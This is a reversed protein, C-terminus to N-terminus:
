GRGRSLLHSLPRSALSLAVMAVTFFLLVRAVSTWSDALPAGPGITTLAMALGLGVYGGIVALALRFNAVRGSWGNGGRLSISFGVVSGAVVLVALPFLLVIYPAVAQIAGEGVFALALTPFFILLMVAIFGDRVALLGIIYSREDNEREDQERLDRWREKIGM